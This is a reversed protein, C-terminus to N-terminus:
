TNFDTVAQVRLLEYDLLQQQVILLDSLPVSAGSYSRIMINLSKEALAAQDSYLRIRRGADTYLQLAEYYENTLNNLTTLYNMESASKLTVAENQLARYKKRYVPLTLKVMPMIMDRGNMDSEAMENKNIVSYNLGIGAMPFGMRKSMEKRADLSQQEFRIMALMPNNKRISDPVFLIDSKLSDAYLTDPLVVPALPPRNLFSNFKSLLTNQQDKYLAITNLLEGEEIQIRYLDALGSGSTGSQMSNQQMPQNQNVVAQGGSGMSGMGSQGGMSSTAGTPNGSGMASSGTFSGASNGTSGSRYRALSLKEISKLLELNKESIRLNERLRYMEYWTKKVDLMVQLRADRFSEFSAKAMLSMEDKANKLVGFWPFMQMLSLDAVQNGALLEMPTIFVGATLEPDPLAGAQPVRELAAKYETFRQLVLPNNQLAIQLYDSLSDNTQLIM